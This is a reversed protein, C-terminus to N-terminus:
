ADVFFLLGLHLLISVLDDLFRGRLFVSLFFCFPGHRQPLLLELLSQGFLHSANLNPSLGDAGLLLAMVLIVLFDQVDLIHDLALHLDAQGILVTPEGQALAPRRLQLILIQLDVVVEPGM